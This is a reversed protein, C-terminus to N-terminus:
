IVTGTDVEDNESIFEDNVDVSEESTTQNPESTDTEPVDVGCGAVFLLGIVLVVFFIKKM